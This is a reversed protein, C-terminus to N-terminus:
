KNEDRDLPPQPYPRWGRVLDPRKLVDGSSVWRWQGNECYFNATIDQFGKDSSVWFILETGDTPATELPHWDERKNLSM